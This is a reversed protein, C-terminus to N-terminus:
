GLCDKLKILRRPNRSGAGLVPSLYMIRVAMTINAATNPVISNASASM